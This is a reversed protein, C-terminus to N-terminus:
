ILAVVVNGTQIANARQAMLEGVAQPQGVHVVCAVAQEVAHPCPVQHVLARVIGIGEQRSRQCSVLQAVDPPLLRDFQRFVTGDVVHLGQGFATIGINYIVVAVAVLEIPSLLVVQEFVALGRFPVASEIAVSQEDGMHLEEGFQPAVVDDVPRSCAVVRGAYALIAMNNTGVVRKHSGVVKIPFIALFISVDPPEVDGAVGIGELAVVRQGVGRPGVGLYITLVGVAREAQVFGDGADM